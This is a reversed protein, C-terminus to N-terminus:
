PGGRGRPVRSWDLRYLTYVVRGPRAIGLNPVAASDVPAFAAAYPSRALLDNARAARDLVFTPQAFDAFDLRALADEFPERELLPIMRPTVLGGLDLVRREGFWGIAGIDPTAVTADAPAHAAIWRGFPILSAHMARTFSTVQPRVLAVYTIANALLALGAVAAAVVPARRTAGVAARELAVWARWELVPLVVLLYRTLLPVGRALEIAPVLVVWAAAIAGYAGRAPDRGRRARTALLLALVFVGDTALVAPVARRLNDLLGAWGGSGAAKASLTAPLVSGFYGRAILLWGGLLLAPGILGAVIRRPRARAAPDAVLAAAWLAVLLMAEPRALAALGWAVGVRTRRGGGVLAVFGALVLAVALPTEMGSMSWRAMWAHGAWALTAAVRLAPHALTRRALAFFLAVSALTAAAGLARALALGDVGITMGLALLGVWLPSTFGYVREGANFVPGLGQALHRAIQLHIFTDDTLYGRLPAMALAALALAGALGAGELATLRARAAPPASV